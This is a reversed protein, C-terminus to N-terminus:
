INTHKFNEWFSRVSDEVKQIRKENQKEWQTNKAEKYKFYKVQNKPDELRSNFRQINNKIETLTHKIESQDKEM